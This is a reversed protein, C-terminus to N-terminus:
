FLNFDSDRLAKRHERELVNIRERIEARSRDDTAVAMAENLERLSMRHAHELGKRWEYYGESIAM